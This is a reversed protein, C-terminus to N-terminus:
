KVDVSSAAPTPDLGPDPATGVATPSAKVSGTTSRQQYVVNFAEAAEFARVALAQWDWHTPDATEVFIAFIELADDRIQETSSM